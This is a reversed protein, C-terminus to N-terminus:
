FTKKTPPRTFFGNESIPFFFTVFLPRPHFEFSPCVFLASDALSNHLNFGSSLTPSFYLNPHLFFVFLEPMSLLVLRKPIEQRSYYVEIPSIVSHVVHIGPFLLLMSRNKVWGATGSQNNVPPMASSESKTSLEAFSGIYTRQYSALFFLYTLSLILTVLAYFSVGLWHCEKRDRDRDRPKNRM